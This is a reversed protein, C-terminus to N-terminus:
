PNSKVNLDVMTQDLNFNGYYRKIIKGIVLISAHKIGSSLTIKQKVLGYLDENDKAVLSLYIDYGNILTMISIVEKLNELKAIIEEVNNRNIRLLFIANTRQGVKTPNTIARIRIFNENLLFSIRKSVTSQDIGLKDALYKGSYRGNEVLQYIIQLDINDIKYFNPKFTKESSIGYYRKLVDKVFYIEIEHVDKSALIGGSIFTHLQDWTPFYVIILLNFSGFTTAIFNVNFNSELNRCIEDIKDVAVNAAIIANALYGLKYPNPVGKIELYQNKLLYNVRKSVESISIGLKRSLQRFSARGNEVLATLLKLDIDDMLNTSLHLNDEQIM